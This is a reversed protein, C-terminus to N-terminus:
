TKPYLAAWNAMVMRSFIDHGVVIRRHWENEKDVVLLASSAQHGIVYNYSFRAFHWTSVVASSLTGRSTPTANGVIAIEFANKEAFSESRATLCAAVYSLHSSQSFIEYEERRWDLLEQVSEPDLGSREELRIVRQHLNKPSATTHWFDKVAADDQAATFSPALSADDLIALCLLLAESYSRLLARAPTDFGCLCLLRVSAGFSVAAGVLAWAARVHAPQNPEDMRQDLAVFVFALWQVGQELLALQPQLEKSALERAKKEQEELLEKLTDEGEAPRSIEEYVARWKEAIQDYITSM